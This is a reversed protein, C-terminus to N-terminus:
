QKIFKVTKSGKETSLKAFYIGADLNATEMSFNTADPSASKVMQGLTNYVVVNTIQEDSQINIKNITPNPYVSVNIANFDNVAAIEDSTVIVSGLAAENVPNANLGLVQFGYQVVADDSEVNDYTVSFSSGDGGLVVSEQKLVSFDSNFVKIFAVTTYTSLVMTTNVGNALEAIIAEGVVDSVMLVPITVSEGDAGGAMVIPAGEQNNVVIVAIAGANQAALAKFGFECAGRRLVAVNGDIEGANTIPECADNEDPDAGEDTVLVADGTLATSTFAGGFNAAVAQHGGELPGNNVNFLLQGAGDLTNSTVLGEFTLESGVLTNDEVYTNGEFLKNGLVTAQNVWFPDTGDAWTNYNPQLTLTNNAPDVITQLDPVGWSEGFVFDGNTEFVNAYGFLEANADVTVTNQAIGMSTLCFVLAITFYNKKM